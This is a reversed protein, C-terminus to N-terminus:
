FPWDRRGVRRRIPGGAGLEDLETQFKWPPEVKGKPAPPEEEKVPKVERKARGGDDNVKNDLTCPGLHFDELTCGPTGCKRKMRLPPSKVVAMVDM